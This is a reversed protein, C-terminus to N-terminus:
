HIIENLASLLEQMNSFVLDAGANILDERNLIGTNIGITFIGAAVGARIGLPANEIVIAENAAVQAKNLGMLYPEPYPKGQKVDKATVMQKRDFLNPYHEAVRNLTTEEGSGTVVLRDINNNALYKVVDLTGNIPAPKPMSKFIASKQAYIEHQEQETSHRGFQKLFQEDITSFGTRGENLYVEYESFSIGLKQLAEVWAKAHLPMSDFLVGDMDFLAAKINLSQYNHKQLFHEKATKIM